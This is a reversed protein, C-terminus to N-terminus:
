CRNTLRTATRRVVDVSYIGFRACRARGFIAIRRGDPFWVPSTGYVIRAIRRQGSGDPRVLMLDWRDASNGRGPTEKVYAIRGGTPSWAAGSAYGKVLLHSRSGDASVVFVHPPEYRAPRRPNGQATLVLMGGGPAWSGAGVVPAVKLRRRATGDARVVESAARDHGPLDLAYTVRTSDPSWEGSMIWGLRHSAAVTRAGTGDAHSVWLRRGTSYAAHRGDPSWAPDEPIPSSRVVVGDEPRMLETRGDRTVSVLGGPGWTAGFRRESVAVLVRESGGERDVVMLAQPGQSYRSGPYVRRFLVYRGSSSVQPAVDSGPQAASTGGESGAAFAAVALCAVVVGGRRM